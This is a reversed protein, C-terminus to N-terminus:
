RQRHRHRHPGPKMPDEVAAGSRSSSRTPRSASTWISVVRLWNKKSLRGSATPPEVVPRFPRDYQRAQLRDHAARHQARRRSWTCTLRGTGRRPRGVAIFQVDGPNGAEIDTTFSLRGAAVNTGSWIARGPEGDPRERISLEIKVRM